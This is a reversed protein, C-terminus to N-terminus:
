GQRKQTGSECKQRTRKAVPLRIGGKIPFREGRSVFLKDFTTANEFTGINKGVVHHLISVLQRQKLVMLTLELTKRLSQAFDGFLLVGKNLVRFHYIQRSADLRVDFVERGTHQVPILVQFNNRLNREDPCNRKVNRHISDRAGSYM